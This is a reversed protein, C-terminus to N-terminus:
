VGSSYPKLLQSVCEARQIPSIASITGMSARRRHAEQKRTSARNHGFDANLTGLAAMWIRSLPCEHRHRSVAPMLHRRM